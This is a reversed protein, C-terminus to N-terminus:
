RGGFRPPRKERFARLAERRDETPVITAYAAREVELAEALRPAELGADIARKAARLALPGCRAIEGALELSRAELRDPEVVEDVLGAERAQEAPAVRASFIWLKARAPGVLRALRQTGGAGPIIALSCEPLGVKAGAAALRMDCALALEFGGGLAAGQIVAIVPVPVAALASAAEGIARVAAQAEGDSLREREKLDAGACFARGRAALLVCSVDRDAGVTRVAEGLEGVLARGLANVPPNDLVIRAVREAPHEVAITTYTRDAM